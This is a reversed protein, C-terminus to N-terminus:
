KKLIWVAYPPILKTKVTHFLPKYQKTLFTTPVPQSLATPNLLISYSHGRYKWSKIKLPGSVREAPTIQTGKEVIKKFRALEQVVNKVQGWFQPASVPLPKGQHEFVFYFLGDAGNVLGHYSMFRIEEQTPFRGIREHDPRHQKFEKWDFIQVVGWLPRQDQMSQRAYSIQEGFSELPLHPVPYWDVMLGDALDYYPVATKGQGIVFTTTHHPFAKKVHEHAMGVRERSWKWVDPEDVLYWALVPWQAAQKEYVSELIQNPYFVVKLGQKKATKALTQLAAPETQYTQICSFGAKKITKLDAPDNVGYLCLPFERAQLALTVLLLLLVLWKRCM